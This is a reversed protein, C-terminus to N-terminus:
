TNVGVPVIVRDRKSGVIRSRHDFEHADNTVLERREKRVVPLVDREDRQRGVSIVARNHALDSADWTASRARACVCVHVCVCVCVRARARWFM